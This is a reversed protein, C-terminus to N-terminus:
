CPPWALHTWPLAIVLTQEVEAPGPMPAEMGVMGAPLPPSPILERTLKYISPLTQHLTQMLLLASNWLFYTYIWHFVSEFRKSLLVNAKVISSHVAPHEYIQLM